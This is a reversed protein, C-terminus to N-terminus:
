AVLASIKGEVHLSEIFPSIKKIYKFKFYESYLYETVNVIGASVKPPVCQTTINNNKAHSESCFVWRDTMFM